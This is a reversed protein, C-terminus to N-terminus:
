GNLLGTALNVLAHLLGSPVFSGSKYRLWGLLWGTAFQIPLLPWLRLDILLLPLHPILFVVAQLLNGWGFGLRRMFVGGLLGRFFIEEGFARFIIGVASGVSTLRVVSATATEELDAPVISTALWGIFVLVPLLALAVGYDKPAGWAAGARSAAERATREPKRSQTAIYILTPVLFLVFETM